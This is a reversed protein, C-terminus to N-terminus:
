NALRAKAEAIEPLEIDAQGWFSLFKRYMAEADPKRGMKEYTRGLFYYAMVYQDPTHLRSDGRLETLQKFRAEAEPLRGAALYARGLGLHYGPSDNMKAAISLNIIADDFRNRELLILGHM